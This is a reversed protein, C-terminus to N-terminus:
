IKIKNQKAKEQAKSVLIYRYANSIVHVANQLDAMKNGGRRSRDDLLTDDYLSTQEDTMWM